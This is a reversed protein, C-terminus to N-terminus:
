NMMCFQKYETHKFSSHLDESHVKWGPGNEWPDSTAQNVSADFAGSGAIHEM